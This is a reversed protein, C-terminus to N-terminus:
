IVMIATGAHDRHGRAEDVAKATNELRHVPYVKSFM